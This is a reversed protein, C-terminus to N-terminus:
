GEDEIQEVTVRYRKGPMLIYSKHPLDDNSLGLGDTWVAAPSEGTKHATAEFSFSGGKRNSVAPCIKEEGYKCARSTCHEMHINTEKRNM